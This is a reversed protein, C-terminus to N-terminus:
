LRKYGHAPCLWVKPLWGVKLGSNIYDRSMDACNCEVSDVSNNARYISIEIIAQAVAAAKEEEVDEFRVWEGDDSEMLLAPQFRAMDFGPHIRYRKM